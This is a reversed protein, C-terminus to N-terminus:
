ANAAEQVAITSEEQLLRSRSYFYGAFIVVAAAVFLGTGPGTNPLSSATQQVVTVPPSPVKINISDGYENTMILDFHNPDGTDRPTSPIPNKVKVTIHHKLTEGPALTVGPWTVNGHADLSGGDLDTPTAYDMVDSLSETFVFPDVPMSGKNTATLMYTIVSDPQATTGDANPGSTTGYIATKHRLVCDGEPTTIPCPTTCESAPLEGNECTPPPTIIPPPPNKVVTVCVQNSTVPSANSAVVKAFNCIQTGDPTSDNIRVTLTVTRGDVTGVSDWTWKATNSSSSYTSGSAGPNQSLSVYTTNAPIGDTLVVNNAPGDGANNFTVQYSLTKGPAVKSNAAPSGASMQKHIKLVPTPTKQPPTYPTPPHKFVLNGCSFLIFFTGNNGNSATGKIALYNSGNQVNSGTDYEDLLRAYITVPSGNEKVNPLNPYAHQDNLRNTDPNRCPGNATDQKCYSHWGMSYLSGGNNLSNLSVVSANALDNCTIGFDNLVDRYNKANPTASCADVLAQHSKKNKATSNITQDSSQLVGGNIMDNESYASTLQPPAVVAFFQVLFALVAFFMGIRRIAAEERMRRAYFALEHSIGPNSPMLSLLKEFM